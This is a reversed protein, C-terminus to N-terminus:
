FYKEEFYNPNIGFDNAEINNKLIELVINCKSYVDYLYDWVRLKGFADKLENDKIVKAFNIDYQKTDKNYCKEYLIKQYIEYDFRILDDAIRAGIVFEVFELYLAMKRFSGMYVFTESFSITIELLDIIAQSVNLKGIRNCRAEIENKLYNLAGFLYQNFRVRDFESYLYLIKQLKDIIDDDEGKSNDVLKIIVELLDEERMLIEKVAIYLHIYTNIFKTKGYKKYIIGTNYLEELEDPFETIYKQMQKKNINFSGNIFSEYGIDDLLKCAKDSVSFKEHLVYQLFEKAFGTASEDIEEKKDIFEKYLKLNRYEHENNERIFSRKWWNKEFEVQEILKYYEVAKKKSKRIKVGKEFKEKIAKIQKEDITKYKYKYYRSTDNKQTNEEKLDEVIEELVEMDVWVACHKKIYKLMKDIYKQSYLNQLSPIEEEFTGEIWSQIISELKEGAAIDVAIEGLGDNLEGEVDNSLANSVAEAFAYFNNLMYETNKQYKFIEVCTRFFTECEVTTVDYEIMDINGNEIVDEEFLKKTYEYLADSKDQLIGMILEPNEYVFDEGIIKKLFIEREYNMKSKILNFLIPRRNYYFSKLEYFENQAKQALKERVEDTQDIIYIYHLTEVYKTSKIYKQVDIEKRKIKSIIYDAISHKCVELEVEELNNFTIKLFSNSLTKISKSFIEFDLHAINEDAVIQNFQEKVYKEPVKVGYLVIITLIIKEYSSLKKYEEEWLENPDKLANLIYEQVNPVKKDKLRECILSIVGPNFNDNTIVEVYFENEAIQKHTDTGLLNNIKMHNYLINGKEEYTYNAVDILYENKISTAKYFKYFIDKANNYIYTRTTFILKKNKSNKFIGVIKDLTSDAINKELYQVNSGLFDDLLCIIKEDIAIQDKIKPLDDVNGYIFIYGQDIYDKVLRRATTTKGVWPEGHLIVINQNELKEKAEKYANTEFFVENSREIEDLEYKANYNYCTIKKDYVETKPLTEIEQYIKLNKIFEICISVLKNEELKQFKVRKTKHKKIENEKLIQEVTKLDFVKYFIEVNRNLDIETIFYIAGMNTKRYNEIDSIKVTHYTEKPNKDYKNKQAQGKVQAPIIGVIDTTKDSDGKYLEIRGDWVPEKERKKLNEQLNDYKTIEAQVAIIGISEKKTSNM